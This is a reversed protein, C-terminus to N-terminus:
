SGVTVCYQQTVQLDFEYVRAIAGGVKVFGTRGSGSPKPRADAVPSTGGLTAHQQFLLKLADIIGVIQMECAQADTYDCPVHLRITQIDRVGGGMTFHVSDESLLYIICCPMLNVNIDKAGGIYVNAFAPQGNVQLGQMLTKLENLVAQTNPASAM